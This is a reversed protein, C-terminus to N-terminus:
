LYQIYIPNTDGKVDLAQIPPYQDVRLNLSKCLVHELQLHFSDTRFNM